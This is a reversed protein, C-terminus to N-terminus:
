KLEPFNGTGPPLLAFGSKCLAKYAGLPRYPQEVYSFTIMHNAFDDGARHAIHMKGERFEMRANGNASVM